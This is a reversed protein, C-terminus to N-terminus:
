VVTVLFSIIAWSLLGCPNGCLSPHLQNFPHLTTGWLEEGGLYPVNWNQDLGWQLNTQYVLLPMKSYAEQRDHTTEAAKCVKEKVREEGVKVPNPARSHEGKETCNRDREYELTTSLWGKCGKVEFCWTITQTAKDKRYIFGNYGIWSPNTKFAVLFQIGPKFNGLLFIFFSTVQFVNVAM